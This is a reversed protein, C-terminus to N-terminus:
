PGNGHDSEEKRPAAQMVFFRVGRLTKVSRDYSKALVAGDTQPASLRPVLPDEGAVLSQSGLQLDLDRHLVLGLVNVSVQGVNGCHDILAPKGLSLLVQSLRDEPTQGLSLGFDM